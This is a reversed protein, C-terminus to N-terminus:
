IEGDWLEMICKYPGNDAIFNLAPWRKQQPIQTIMQLEESSLGQEYAWKLSIKLEFGGTLLLFHFMLKLRPTGM